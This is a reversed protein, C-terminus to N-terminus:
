RSLSSGPGDYGWNRNPGVSWVVAKPLANGDPMAQEIVMWQFVNNWPDLPPGPDRLPIQDWSNELPFTSNMIYFNDIAQALTKATSRAVNVRSQELYNLYMPTAVGVLIVLIAVVVLLEMLTFGSRRRRESSRIPKEELQRLFM